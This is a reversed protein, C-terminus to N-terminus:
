VPKSCILFNELILNELIHTSNEFVCKSGIDLGVTLFIFQLLCTLVIICM